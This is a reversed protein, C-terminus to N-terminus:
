RYALWVSQWLWAGGRMNHTSGAAHPWAPNNVVFPDERPDAPLPFGYWAAWADTIGVALYGSEAIWRVSGDLALVTFGSGGHNGVTTWCQSRKGGFSGSRADMVLPWNYKVEGMRWRHPVGLWGPAPPRSWPRGGKGISSWSDTGNRVVVIEQQLGDDQCGTIAMNQSYDCYYMGSSLAPEEGSTWSSYDEPDRYGGERIDNSPCFFLRIDDLYGMRYYHGLGLVTNDRVVSSGDIYKYWGAPHTGTLYGDNDNSFMITAMGTQKLNNACKIQRAQALAGELAPLLLSALMSIIAIVVLLEVLTFALSQRRM